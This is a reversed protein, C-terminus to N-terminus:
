WNESSYERGNHWTAGLWDGLNEGSIEITIVGGLPNDDPLPFAVKGAM